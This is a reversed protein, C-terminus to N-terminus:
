QWKIAVSGCTIDQGRAFRFLCIEMLSLNGYSVFKWLLRKVAVSRGQLSGKFVVTGHSDIGLIDESVVLSTTPTPPEMTSKMLELKSEGKSAGNDEQEEGGEVEGGERGHVGNVVIAKPRKKGRKRRRGRPPTPIRWFEQSRRRRRGERSSALSSGM